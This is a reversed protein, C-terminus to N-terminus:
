VRSRLLVNHWVPVGESNLLGLCSFSLLMRQKTFLLFLAGDKHSNQGKAWNRHSNAGLYRQSSLRSNDADCLHQPLAPLGLLAVFRLGAGGMWRCKKRLPRWLHLVSSRLSFTKYSLRTSNALSSRWWVSARPRKMRNPLPKNKFVLQLM